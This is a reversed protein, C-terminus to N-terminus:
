KTKKCKMGKKPVNKTQVFNLTIHCASNECVELKKMFM